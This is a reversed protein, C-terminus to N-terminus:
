ADRGAKAGLVVAADIKAKSKGHDAIGQAIVYSIAPGILVVVDEVPVDYGIRATFGAILSAVSTVFKKSTLMEVIAARVQRM